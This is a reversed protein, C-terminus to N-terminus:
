LLDGITYGFLDLLGVPNAVSLATWIPDLPGKEAVAEFTTFWWYGEGDKAALSQLNELRHAGTTVVLTRFGTDGYVEDFLGSERYRRYSAVKGQFQASSTHGLDTEIFFSAFQVTSSAAERTTDLRFFGNPKFVERTWLGGTGRRIDYEHRCRTEPLWLDVSVGTAVAASRVSLYFDTTKLAHDLFTPTASRCRKRVEPIPIGTETSVLSAASLGLTYVAQSGYPSEDPFTRSVFKHDYLLRLRSNCRPASGFHLEQIQHRSMVQHYYLDVLLSVDREGIIIRGTPDPRFRSRRDESSESQSSTTKRPM